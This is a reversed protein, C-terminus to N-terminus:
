IRTSQWSVLQWRGERWEHVTTVRLIVDFPTGSLLGKAKVVGTGLALSAGYLRYRMTVPVLSEYVTRKAGILELHHERSEVQANSHTYVLEGALLPRIAATDARVMAAFRRLESTRLGKLEPSDAPIAPTVVIKRYQVATHDGQLMLPGAEGEDSDLAGGTIGPIQFWHGAVNGYLVWEAPDPTQEGPFRAPNLHPHPLLDPNTTM